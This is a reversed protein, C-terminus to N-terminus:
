PDGTTEGPHTSGFLVSGRLIRPIVIPLPDIGFGNVAIKQRM